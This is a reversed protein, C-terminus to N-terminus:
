QPAGHMDGHCAVCVGRNDMRLLASSSEEGNAFGGPTMIAATGHSRHCTMCTVLGTSEEQETVSNELPIGAGTTTNYFADITAEIDTPHRFYTEDDAILLDHCSSCWSNFGSQYGTIQTAPEWLILEEVEVYLDEAEQITTRLLRPNPPDEGGAHPNHCSSCNLGSGVLINDSGPILGSFGPAISGEEFSSANDLYGVVMHRSTVPPPVGDTALGVTDFGGASSETTGAILGGQVDYPAATAGNGHCLYCFQTQTPGVSLLNVMPADHFIHCVRCSNTNETVTDHIFNTTILLSPLFEETYTYDFDDFIFPETSESLAVALDARVLGHGQLTSSLGLDQATEQLISRIEVNSLNPNIALVLAAVGAVHSSAMSTGNAYAYRNMTSASLVDVGPAALEVASGTSSFNARQNTSDIAAVAIVSPYKAPYTVSDGTGNSNGSNGAAAVLLVGQDYAALSAKEITQSGTASGFSMNIIDAGQEVAWEIGAAVSAATGTGNDALVKASYLDVQPAAGVVGISNNLAVITGAVHSGHGHADLNGSNDITNTAKLPAPLDAHPGIGTDLVAITAGSGQTYPWVQPARIRLIGWPITQELAYLEINEEVYEVLPNNALAAVAQTPLEVEVTPIMNFERAVTADLGTLLQHEAVGPFQHFGVLMTQKEPPAAVTVATTSLFLVALCLCLWVKKVTKESM